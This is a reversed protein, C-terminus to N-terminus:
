QVSLLNASAKLVVVSKFYHLSLIIQYFLYTLQNKIDTQMLIRLLVLQLWLVNMYRVQFM